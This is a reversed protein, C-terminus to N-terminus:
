PATDPRTASGNTMESSTVGAAPLSAEFQTGNEFSYAWTGNLQMVMAGILRRGLGTSPIETDFGQGDDAIRLTIM